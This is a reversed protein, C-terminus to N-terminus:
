RDAPWDAATGARRHLRVATWGFYCGLPIEMLVAAAIAGVQDVTGWSLCVDFWADVLALTACVTVALVLHANRGFACVGVWTFALLMFVDFGVWTLRWAGGSSTEPLTIGLDIIWPILVIVGITALLGLFWVGPRRPRDVKARQDNDPAPSANM